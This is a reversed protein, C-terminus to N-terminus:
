IAADLEKKALLANGLNHHPRADKPDLAIAARYEQIAADLEKKDHLVIGLNNHPRADKPDLAIAARISRSPRTWSRRPVSLTASVM